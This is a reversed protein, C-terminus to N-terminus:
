GALKRKAARIWNRWGTLQQFPFRLLQPWAYQIVDQALGQNVRYATPMAMMAAYNQLSSLPMINAAFPAAGYVQPSAWGGLRLEQYMLDLLMYADLDSPLSAQWQQIAELHPADVPLHMRNLLEAADLQSGRKDEDGPKWYFARGVEGGYGVLWVRKMDIQRYCADYFDCTKGANNTYGVRFLYDAKMQRPPDILNLVRYNLKLSSAIKQAIHVDGFKAPDKYDFTVYEIRSLVNRSCALLMRSDRGASLGAVLPYVQALSEICHRTNDAILRALKIAGLEDGRSIQNTPWYRHPQFSNLDLYHNPLLRRANPDGTM